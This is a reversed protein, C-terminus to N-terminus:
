LLAKMLFTFILQSVITVVSKKESYDEGFKTVALKGLENIFSNTYHNGKGLGKTEFFGQTNRALKNALNYLKLAKDM